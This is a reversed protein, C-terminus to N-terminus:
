RPKNCQGFTPDTCCPEEVPISNGALFCEVPIGLVRPNAADCEVTRAYEKCLSLRECGCSQDGVQACWRDLENLVYIQGRVCTDYGLLSYATCCGEVGIECSSDPPVDPLPRSCDCAARCFNEALARFEAQKADEGADDPLSDSIARADVPRVEGDTSEADTFLRRDWVGDTDVPAERDTECGMVLLVVAAVLVESIPAM